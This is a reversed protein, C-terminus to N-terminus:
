ACYVFPHNSQKLAAVRTAKLAAGLEAGALGEKMLKAANVSAVTARLNLWTQPTTQTALSLTEILKEFPQPKKVAAVKTLWTEWEQASMKTSQNELFGRVQEALLKYQNPAKIRQHLRILQALPTNSTALAWRQAGSLHHTDTLTLLNSKPEWILEPFTDPLAHATLLTNFYQSAESCSLAKETEKWVREPTLSQLEGSTSIAQMLTLTDPAITFQFSHLRASFRAARLVRLPDEIFASSVHRLLRKAIDKQGDFPDILTGDEGQAIANITLDRRALDETLPIDPSFDCIFGTYGQGQKKERRALAYEEKSKPHLFVPFQKGVQQYGQRELQEPTAGTVVWDRDIVPIGLLQDRVAGGVLYIQYNPM